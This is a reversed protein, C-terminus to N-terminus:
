NIENGSTFLNYQFYFKEIHRYNSFFSVFSTNQGARDLLWMWLFTVM